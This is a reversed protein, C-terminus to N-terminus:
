LGADWMQLALADMGDVGDGTDHVDANKLGEETLPYKEPLAIYQLVAVADSLDTRGDCNADGSAPAAAMDPAVEGSSYRERLDVLHQGQEASSPIHGNDRKFYRLLINADYIDVCGSENFDAIEKIHDTIDTPVFPVIHNQEYIPAYLTQIIDIYDFYDFVGDGNLDKELEGSDLKAFIPVEEETPIIEERLYTARDEEMYECFRGVAEAGDTSHFQYGEVAELIEETTPLSGNKYLYFITYSINASSSPVAWHPNASHERIKDMYSQDFVSLAEFMEEPHTEGGFYGYKERVQALSADYIENYHFIECLDCIDLEGNDNADVLIDNEQIYEIFSLEDGTFDRWEEAYAKAPLIAAFTLVASFFAAYKKMYEEDGENLEQSPATTVEPLEPLFSETPFIEEPPETDPSDPLLEQQPPVVPLEAKDNEKNEHFAPETKDPATVNQEPSAATTVAPASSGPEREDTGVSPEETALAATPEPMRREPPRLAPDKGAFVALLFAGCVAAAAGSVRRFLVRRRRKEAEARDRRELVAAAMERYDRM